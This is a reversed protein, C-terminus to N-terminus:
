HPTAVRHTRTMQLDVAGVALTVIGVIWATWAMAKTDSFGMVWPSIIFLAGMLATLGEVALLDPRFLEVVGLGVTIAGLVIMTTTARSTTDTWIPSLLAYAGAVLVVFDQPHIKEKV